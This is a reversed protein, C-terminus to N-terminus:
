RRSIPNVTATQHGKGSKGKPLESSMSASAQTLVQTLSEGRMHFYLTLLQHDKRYNAVEQMLQAMKAKLEKMTQKSNIEAEEPNEQVSKKADRIAFAAARIVGMAAKIPAKSRLTVVSTEFKEALEQCTLPTEPNDLAHGKIARVIAEIQAPKLKRAARIKQGPKLGPKKRELVQEESRVAEAGPVPQPSQKRGLGPIGM